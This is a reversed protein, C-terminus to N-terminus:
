EYWPARHNSITLGPYALLRLALLPVKQLATAMFAEIVKAVRGHADLATVWLDPFYRSLMSLGYSVLYFDVFENTDLPVSFAIFENDLRERVSPYTVNVTINSLSDPFRVTVIAANAEESMELDVCEVLSLCFGFSDLVKSLDSLNRTGHFVWQQSVVKGDVVLVEHNLRSTPVSIGARVLDGTLDPLRCVIDLLTRRVRRLESIDALAEVACPERNTRVSNGSRRTTKAVVPEADPLLSYWNAFHGSPLIAVRTESLLTLGRVATTRDVATSIRLGHSRNKESRRLYDFSFRGDGRLLMITSALSVLGYYLHNPSTYPSCTRAADFYERAQLLSMRMQLAQKRYNSGGDSSIGHLKKIEDMALDLNAFELLRRWAEKPIDPSTIWEM